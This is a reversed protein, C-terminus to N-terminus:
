RRQIIISTHRTPDPVTPESTNNDIKSRFIGDDTIVIDNTKYGTYETGYKDTGKYGSVWKGRDTFGIIGLKTLGM